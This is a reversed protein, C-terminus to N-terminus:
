RLVLAPDADGPPPPAPLHPSVERKLARLKARAAVIEEAVM